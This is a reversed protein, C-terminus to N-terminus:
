KQVEKIAAELPRGKEILLVARLAQTKTLGFRERLLGAMHRRERSERAPRHFDSRLDEYNEINPAVVREWWNAGREEIGPADPPTTMYKRGTRPDYAEVLPPRPAVTTRGENAYNFQRAANATEVQARKIQTDALLRDTVSNAEMVAVRREELQLQKEALAAAANAKADAKQGQAYDTLAQGIHQGATGVANGFGGSSVMSVPNQYNAAVGLAALPHIGALKADNAMMRIRQAEFAHAMKLQKKSARNDLFGGLLSGGASIAAGGLGAVIGGMTIGVMDKGKETASRNRQREM